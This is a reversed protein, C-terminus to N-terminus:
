LFKIQATKDYLNLDYLTKILKISDKDRRESIEYVAEMISAQNYKYIKSLIDTPIGYLQNMIFWFYKKADIVESDSEDSLFFNKDFCFWNCLVKIVSSGIKKTRVVGKM